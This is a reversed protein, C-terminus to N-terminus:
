TLANIQVLLICIYTKKARDGHHKWVTNIDSKLAYAKKKERARVSNFVTKYEYNKGFKHMLM